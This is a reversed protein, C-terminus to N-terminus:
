SQTVKNQKNTLISKKVCVKTIFYNNCRKEILVCHRYNRLYANRTMVNHRYKNKNIQKNEIQTSFYHSTM